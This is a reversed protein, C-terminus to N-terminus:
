TRFPAANQTLVAASLSLALIITEDRRAAGPRESKARLYQRARDGVAHLLMTQLRVMELGGVYSRIGGPFVPRKMTCYPLM